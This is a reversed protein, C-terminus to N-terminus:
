SGWWPSYEGTCSHYLNFAFPTSLATNAAFSCNTLSIIGGNFSVGGGNAVLVNLSHFIM